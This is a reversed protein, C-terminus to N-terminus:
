RTLPEIGRCSVSLNGLYSALFQAAREGVLTGDRARSNVFQQGAQKPSSGRTMTLRGRGSVLYTPLPLAEAHPQADFGREPTQSLCTPALDCLLTAKPRAGIFQAVLQGDRYLILTPLSQVGYRAQTEPNEDVNLKYITLTNAHHQAVVELVPIMPRCPACWPAWFDVLVWGEDQLVREEFTAANVEHLTAM